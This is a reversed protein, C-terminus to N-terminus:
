NNPSYGLFLGEDSKADLKSRQKRDNLILCTSGFKHFNKLNPKKGRWIEYPTMTTGPCLYVRNLTYCATNLAKAWFNVIVNKKKTCLGLWKEYHETRGKKWGMKNPHRLLLSNM